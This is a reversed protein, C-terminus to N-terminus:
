STVEVEMTDDLSNPPGARCHDSSLMSSRSATECDPVPPDTAPSVLIAHRGCDWRQDHAVCVEVMPHGHSSCWESTVRGM